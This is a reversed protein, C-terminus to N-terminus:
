KLFRPLLYAEANANEDQQEGEIKIGRCGPAQDLDEGVFYTIAVKVEHRCGVSQAFGKGSTAVNEKLPEPARVPGKTEVAMKLPVSAPSVADAALLTSVAPLTAILLIGLIKNAPSKMDAISNIKSQSRKRFVM